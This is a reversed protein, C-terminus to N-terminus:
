PIGFRLQTDLDVNNYWPFLFTSDLLSNPLATMESFSTKVGNVRYVVREAAVIPVDSVIKVPGDDVTPFSRRTSEGALLTFPSGQVETDGIFLHVTATTNTTNAFRLQTDLGLNNYWPLWYTTDLQSNPLAMMETFSTPLGNVKYIVREAAVIDQDSVIQVPGDDIGLFSKRMSEGAGLTFPSGDVEEDGIFVHVNATSSSVNAFRLQSDLGINNYWPLWYTTDLQSNPLAMMEAFSTYVGNVKYIVREAAVIDQDSVIKVPGDDIGPFSKKTSEGAALTFPSGQMEEEGIFVHVSAPLASVNAIRLQTDLGVNNYWPLWYTNDLQNAPLGMMESFSTPANNVKYIVREAALISVDNTNVIKVPGGSIGPYSRRQSEHPSLVYSAVESNGIIVDVASDLGDYEYAGIDCHSGQPRTVGRQDTAPCSTDDAANIAPSGASLAMTETFGGNDQLPGLLPDEDLNGTGTHGGQVISHTIVPTGFINFIEGGSNGWLISNMIIPTGSNGLAGGNIVAINNSMTVHTLTPNSNADRNLMAGGYDASNNTFTVNMLEPSSGLENVMGGGIYNASNDSFTVNTLNPSSSRNHMGGAAAEQTDSTATNGDFTVNTLTPNSNDENSMGGGYWTASNSRFTVSTLVPSSQYNSMGAGWKATNGSFTVNTLVPNNGIWNMMGGGTGLDGATNNSFIVNFLTPNSYYGIEMGGGSRIVSNGDFIVNTLIPDSYNDVRMGGGEIASNNEFTVNTLIPHSGTWYQSFDGGSYMGGGFTAENGTFIVNAVTPSGNKNYMGGGMNESDMGVGNATRGHSVTFGDLVASHNTGSGVVVHYSNDSNDGQVGIDGSLITLNAEYDRQPRATETGAFGGYIAVGNKLTFSIARDTGSTPKYTGAAVWIEGGNAAASLASQLDTYADAWSSGDNAGAADWKVYHIQPTLTLKAVFVDLFGASTLNSTGAGPDFDVTDSFAGALYISVNEVVIGEGLDNSTGGLNKAWLFNGEHDLKSIFVDSAGASTLSSTGAGPDFDVTDSFEGTTYINGAEDLAIGYSADFGVGGVGKTWLWNGDTDLKSILTDNNAPSVLGYFNAASYVNGSDDLTIEVGVDSSAGGARRAWVFDGTSDLKSIFIDSQGLSTLNSTGAGPDFDATDNFFGTTFVNGSGDVAIDYSYDSGPGGMSKAWLLNGASDLKLVFVDAFGASSLTSVGVGPDFDVTDVYIGTVYVNGNVDTTIGYGGDSSTGGVSKVWIFNGDADYKIVFIDSLGESTLDAASNGPNFEVTASYAGSVYVNGAGDVTVGHEADHGSGAIIKSWIPNGSSDWKTLFGDENGPGNTVFGTVYVNGSNDLAIATGYDLDPGGGAQVWGFDVTEAKAPQVNFLGAILAAALAVRMMAYKRYGTLM